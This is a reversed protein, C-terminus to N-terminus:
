PAVRFHGARLSGLGLLWCGIGLLWFGLAKLALVLHVEYLAHAHTRPAAAALVSVVLSDDPRLESSLSRPVGGCERRSLGGGGEEQVQNQPM